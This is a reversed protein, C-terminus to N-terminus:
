PPTRDDPSKARTPNAIIKARLVSLLQEEDVFRRVVRGSLDKVATVDLLGESIWLEVTSRSRKVREAAARITLKKM